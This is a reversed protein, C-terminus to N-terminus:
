QRGKIRARRERAQRAQLRSHRASSANSMGYAHYGEERVRGKEGRKLPYVEGRGSVLGSVDDVLRAARAPM